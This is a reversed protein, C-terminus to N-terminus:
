RETNFGSPPGFQLMHDPLHLLLHIKLKSRLEPCHKDVAQAFGLCVSKMSEVKDPTFRECYVLKFVQVSIYMTYIYLHTVCVIVHVKSLALWVETEGPSVLPPFVFLALQALTKFDCGVFSKYYKSIDRSLRLAFGSFPFSAIRALVEKRQQPSFRAMRSRLMYKYPGLVLTHLAEM